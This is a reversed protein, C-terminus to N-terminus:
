TVGPYALHASESSIGEGPTVERCKAQNVEHKGLMTMSCAVKSQENAVSSRRGCEYKLTCYVTICLQAEVHQFTHM